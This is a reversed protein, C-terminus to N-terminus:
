GSPAPSYLSFGAERVFGMLVLDFRRATEIALSSPASVSLVGACRAVIAKQVIEFSVRGSVCLFLGQATQNWRLLRDGIVKDVANHRGVDEFTALEAGGPELLSAAHVGGTLAFTPQRDVLGQAALVLPAADFDAPRELRAARKLLDDISERGCVGCASSVTIARAQEDFRRWVEEAGPALAVDIANGYEPDSTRGCHVISGLESREGIIGDTWLLGATLERDAGPTRMTVLWREGSVRIELPEEVAVWDRSPPEKRVSGLSTGVFRVREVERAGERRSVV